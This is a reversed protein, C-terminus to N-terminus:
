LHEAQLAVAKWAFRHWHDVLSVMFDLGSNFEILRAISTKYQKFGTWSVFDAHLCSTNEIVTTHCRIPGGGRYTAGAGTLPVGGSVPLPENVAPPANGRCDVVLVEPTAAPYQLEDIQKNLADSHGYCWPEFMNQM